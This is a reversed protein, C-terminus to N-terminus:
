AYTRGIPSLNSSNKNINNKNLGETVNAQSGKTFEFNGQKMNDNSNDGKSEQAEIKHMM